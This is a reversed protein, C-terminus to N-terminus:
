PRPEKCPWRELCTICREVLQDDLYKTHVTAGDVIAELTVALAEAQQRLENVAHQWWDVSPGDSLCMIEEQLADLAAITDCPWPQFCRQCHDGTSLATRHGCLGNHGDCMRHRMRLRDIPTTM